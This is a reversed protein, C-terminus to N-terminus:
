PARSARGIGGAAATDDRQVTFHDPLGYAREWDPLLEVAQSPNPERKSLIALACTCRTSRHRGM